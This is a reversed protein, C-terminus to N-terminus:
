SSGDQRKGLLFWYVLSGLFVGLLNALLDNVNYARYPLLYQIGESGAAFVLGSLGWVWANLRFVPRFFMWPMFMLAHFFYDGRFSLITVDNLEGASNIPLVVLLFIAGLYLWFLQKLLTRRKFKM